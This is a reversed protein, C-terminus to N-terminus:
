LLVRKKHTSAALRRRAAAALAVVIYDAEAGTDHSFRALRRQSSPRPTVVKV